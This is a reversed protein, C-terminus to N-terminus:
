KKFLIFSVCSKSKLKFHFLGICFLSSTKNEGRNTVVMQNRRGALIVLEGHVKKRFIKNFAMDVFFQYMIFLYSLLIAWIGYFYNISYLVLPLSTTSSLEYYYIVIYYVVVAINFALFSGNMIAVAKTFSQERKEKRGRIIVKRTKRIHRILIVNCTFMIIFPLVIRMIVFVIDQALLIQTNDQICITQNKSVNVSINLPAYFDNEEIKNIQLYNVSFVFGIVSLILIMLNTKNRKIGLKNELYVSWM